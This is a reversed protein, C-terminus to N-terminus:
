EANAGGFVTFVWSRKAKLAIKAPCELVSVKEDIFNEYAGRKNKSAFLLVVVDADEIAKLSLSIREVPPNPANHVKIYGFTKENLAEHNPFLSAVHGDEGVGLVVLDFRGKTVVMFKKNYDDIGKQMEFRFAHIGNAKSFLRESAQRYNSDKDSALVLREDSMFVNVAQWVIRQKSLEQLVGIISSGGPLAMSFQKKSGSIERAILQAAKKSM